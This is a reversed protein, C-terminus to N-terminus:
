QQVEITTLVLTSGDSGPEPQALPLREGTDMRYVGIHLAYAGPALAPLPLDARDIVIEDARWHSSPYEDQRMLADRQVVVKGAQDILHVFLAYDHPLPNGTQWTLNIQLSEGVPVVRQNAGELPSIAPRLPGSKLEYGLLRLDPGFGAERRAISLREPHLGLDLVEIRPGPEGGADGAFTHLLTAGSKLDSYVPASELTRRSDNAVLYRYNNARYWDLPHETVDEVPEVIPDGAWAVPNLELAIRQGRPLTRVYAGALIKTNTRRQFATLEVASAASAGYLVVLVAAVILAHYRPVHRTLWEIATAGGIGVPLACLVVLPMLNRMFHGPQSLFVLLYPVAFSLWLLGLRWRRLLLALGLLLALFPMPRLGENWFFDLYGAINWAGLYDGHAGAGYHTMQRLIGDRFEPWALVAYPTGVVFALLSACGAVILRPLRAVMQRRWYLGHAVVIPLVVAGANYKTSAALGAWLGALLYARWRGSEMISTAALYALLVFCASGVDTTVYQSHRMHFPLVALFLAALLGASRSWSRKGLVFMGLVTATGLVIALVRGWVFFEPITTYLDTTITMQDLSSYLGTAIGWRYHVALIAWLLYFYFSPYLFFHPNLDGSRLMQLVVNVLAPEDPHDVYPLGWRIAWLRLGFALLTIAGALLWEWRRWLARAQPEVVASDTAVMPQMPKSEPNFM